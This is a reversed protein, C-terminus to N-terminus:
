KDLRLAKVAKKLQEPIAIKQPCVAACAGCEICELATPAAEGLSERAESRTKQAALYSNYAAFVKPISIEMPCPEMCYECGTCPVQDVTRIIERVKDTAALEDDTLPSFDSMYGINDRMMEMSGMGSLVMFVEPYSAAYRIAYSAYSGGNLADFVEKASDPLNVLSGGRVPEMVIVPKGHKVCVDYCAKSQVAPDDYDLYNLQLQVAEVEPQETLIRDLVDATDHFSMAIHKIRGQEKLGKVFEFANCRLCKEYSSASLAHMLYFDFYDVGCKEIQKEFLPALDEEKEFFFYSLKNALIYSERPYRAVLCDRLATESKGDIYGHATDFYNFGAEIFTDIMENFVDYDVEGDKMALRMCGFGFNKKVEPFANNM